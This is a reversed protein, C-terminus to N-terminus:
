ALSIQRMTRVYEHASFWKSINKLEIIKM